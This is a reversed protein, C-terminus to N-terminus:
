VQGQWGSTRLSAGASQGSHPMASSGCIGAARARVSYTQGMCGATTRSAGPLQGSHAMSSSGRAASGSSPGLGSSASMRRRSATAQVSVRGTSTIAILSITGPSSARSQSPGAHYPHDWATSAVGTTSHHPHGKKTRAQVESTVRLSLM